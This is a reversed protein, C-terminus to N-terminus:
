RCLATGFIALAASTLPGIAAAGIVVSTMASSVFGAGRTTALREARALVAVDSAGLAGAPSTGTLALLGGLLSWEGHEVAAADDARMELLRSVQQSGETMLRLSPFTAALGRAVAVIQPHHGDLHAREHALIASLEPGTLMALAASTVVVAHPRGAVCYAAPEPADIVLADVGSLRRGVVHVASAHRQTRMRMRWLTGLLRAGSITVAAAGIGALLLMALQIATGANGTALSRLTALCAAFAAGPHRWHHALDVLAFTTAAVWSVLVSVMAALWAAAGLRPANGPHTLRRLLPPAVVLVGLSYLVLSVAVTM